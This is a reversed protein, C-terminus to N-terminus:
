CSDLEARLLHSSLACSPVFTQGCLQLRLERGPLLRQFAGDARQVGKEANGAQLSSFHPILSCKGLAAMVCAPILRAEHACVVQYWVDSLLLGFRSPQGPVDWHRHHTCLLEVILQLWLVKYQHLWSGAVWLPTYTSLTVARHQDAWHGGCAFLRFFFILCIRSSVQFLFAPRM